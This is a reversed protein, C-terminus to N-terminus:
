LIGYATNDRVFHTKENHKALKPKLYNILYVSVAYNVRLSLTIDASM